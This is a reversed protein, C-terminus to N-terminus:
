ERLTLDHLAPLRRALEHQMSCAPGIPFTYLIHKYTQKTQTTSKNPQPPKPFCSSPSSHHHSPTPRHHLSFQLRSTLHIARPRANRLLPLPRYCNPALYIWKQQPRRVSPTRYILLVLKKKLKKQEEINRPHSAALPLISAVM